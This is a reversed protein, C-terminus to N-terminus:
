PNSADKRDLFSTQYVNIDRFNIKLFDYIQDYLCREFVKSVNSLISIPRYNSKEKRDDKKYLEAKKFDEVYEGDKICKNLNIYVYIYIYIYIYM